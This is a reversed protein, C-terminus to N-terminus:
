VGESKGNFFFFVNLGTVMDIFWPVCVIGKKSSGWGSALWIGNSVWAGYGRSQCLYPLAVSLTYTNWPCGRGPERVGLSIDSTSSSSVRGSTPIPSNFKYM